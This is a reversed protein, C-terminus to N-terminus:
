FQGRGKSQDLAAIKEPSEHCITSILSAVRERSGTIAFTPVNELSTGLRDVLQKKVAQSPAGDFIVKGGAAVIDARETDLFFPYLTHLASLPTLKKCKTTGDNLNLLVIAKIKVAPTAAYQEPKLNFTYRGGNTEGDKPINPWRNRDETRITLAKTGGIAQMDGNNEITVLTKDGSFIHLGSGLASQLTASTKGVGSHGVLLVYGDEDNGVCGAHVPYMNKDLWASRAAGFFLHAFDPSIQGDWKDHLRIHGGQQQLGPTDSEIHEIHVGVNQPSASLPQIGPLHAALHQRQAADLTLPTTSTLLAGVGGALSFFERTKQSESPEHKKMEYRAAFDAVAQAVQEAGGSGFQDVLKTAASHELKELKAIAQACRDEFRQRAQPDTKIKQVAETIHQAIKQQSMSYDIPKDSFIDAWDIAADITDKRQMLQLQLAQSDNSPPLFLTPIDYGAVDYINGLGSTMVAYKVKPFLDIMKDRNFTMAGLHSLKDAIQKSTLIKIKETPPIVKKLTEIILEAYDTAQEDTWFPNKLGGLNILVYKPDRQQDTKPIIPSVIQTEGFHESEKAIRDRVGHFDQALYLTDKDKVVPPISPWYWTLPDYIITPKGMKRATAAREFDLATLFVDHDAVIGEFKKQGNPGSIDYVADYYIGNAELTRQLDLSHGTGVYAIHDFHERLYPFFSAIAASPGFGFSEANVLLKVPSKKTM